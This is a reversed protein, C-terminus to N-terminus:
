KPQAGEGPGQGDPDHRVRRQGARRRGEGRPPHLREAGRRADGPRDDDPRAPKGVEHGQRRRDAGRRRDQRRDEEADRLDRAHRRLRRDLLLRPQAQVRRQLGQRVGQEEGVPSQLRLAVRHHHRARRRGHEEAREEDTARGPGPGQDQEQRHRARRVGQRAGGAARRGAHLHLHRGPQRGQRAARLRLLRPQRGPLAGLRRDRRRRGQLREPVRDRRRPGPRLRHGHHLRKRVGNKDAWTGFTEMVQPLTVSTRIMYPSKTTIVSTAANMVVMFKKAEASVDGAAMANPTLVYGALIDVGDRM